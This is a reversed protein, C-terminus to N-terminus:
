VARIFSVGRCKHKRPVTCWVPQTLVAGLNFEARKRTKQNSLALLTKKGLSAMQLPSLQETSIQAFIPWRLHCHKVAFVNFTIKHNLSVCDGSNRWSWCLFSFSPWVSVASSSRHCSSCSVWVAWKLVPSESSNGSISSRLVLTANKEPFIEWQAPFCPPNVEGSSNQISISVCLSNKWVLIGSFVAANSFSLFHQSTVVHLHWFVLGEQYCNEGPLQWLGFCISALCWPWYSLSKTKGASGIWRNYDSLEEQNLLSCKGDTVAKLLAKWRKKKGAVHLSLCM